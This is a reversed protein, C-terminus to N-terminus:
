NGHNEGGIIFFSENDEWHMFRGALATLQEVGFPKIVYGRAGAARAKDIFVKGEEATIMLVKAQADIKKLDGLIELGDRKPMFLDLLVFDPKEKRYAEVGEEGSTAMAVKFGRNEFARALHKITDREDDVILISQM